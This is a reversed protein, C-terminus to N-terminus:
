AMEFKKSVKLLPVIGREELFWKVASHSCIRGTAGQYYALYGILIRIVDEPYELTSLLLDVEFRYSRQRYLRCFQDMQMYALSRISITCFWYVTNALYNMLDDSVSDMGLGAKDEQYFQLLKRGVTLKGVAGDYKRNIYDRLRVRHFFTGVSSNNIYSLWQMKKVREYQEEVAEKTMQKLGLLDKKRLSFFNPLRGVYIRPFMMYMQLFTLREVWFVAGDYDNKAEQFIRAKEVEIRHMLSRYQEPIVFCSSDKVDYGVETFVYVQRGSIFNFGARYPVKIPWRNLWFNMVRGTEEGLREKGIGQSGDRPDKTEDYCPCCDIPLFLSATELTSEIRQEKKQDALDNFVEYVYETNSFSSMDIVMLQSPEPFRLEREEDFIIEVDLDGYLSEFSEVTMLKDHDGYTGGHYLIQGPSRIMEIQDVDDEFIRDM